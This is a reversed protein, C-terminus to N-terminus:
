RGAAAGRFRRSAAGHRRDRRIFHLVCDTLRNRTSFRRGVDSKAFRRHALRVEDALYRVARSAARQEVDVVHKDGRGIRSEGCDIIKRVEREEADADRSRANRPKATVFSTPRSHTKLHMLRAFWSANKPDFRTSSSVISRRRVVVISSFSAWNPKEILLSLRSHEAGGSTAAPFGCLTNRSIKICSATVDGSRGRIDRHAGELTALLESPSFVSTQSFLM